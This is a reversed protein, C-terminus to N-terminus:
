ETRPSTQWHWFARIVKSWLVKFLGSGACYAGIGDEVWLGRTLCTGAECSRPRSLRLMM